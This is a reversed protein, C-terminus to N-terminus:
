GKRKIWVYCLLLAIGVLANVVLLLRKNWPPGDRTGGLDDQKARKRQLKGRNIVVAEANGTIFSQNEQGLKALTFYDDSFRVNFVADTIDIDESRVVDGTDSDFRKMSIRDPFWFDGYRQYTADYSLILSTKDGNTGSPYEVTAKVIGYDFIPCHWISITAMKGAGSGHVIKWCDSEGVRVLEHRMPRGDYPFADEASKNFHSAFSGVYLGLLKPSFRRPKMGAPRNFTGYFGEEGAKPISFYWDGNTAFTCRGDVYHVEQPGNFEFRYKKNWTLTRVNLDVRGSQIRARAERAQQEIFRGDVNPDAPTAVYLLLLILSM